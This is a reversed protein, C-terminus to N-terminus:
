SLQDHRFCSTEHDNVMGVAQMFAYCITPGVFKFGRRQLDKSMADSETTRAALDASSGIRHDVPKGGVFKWVYAGFSGFEEQVALFAAASRIAGEVKLRNRVIGSDALLREVDKPGFQSIARPDFGVFARRYDERKNLITRWSLGAQAGELVLFEFLRQDDHVPVGWERDHYEIMLPDNGCWACRPPAPASDSEEKM